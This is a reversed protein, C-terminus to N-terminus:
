YGLVAPLVRCDCMTVFSDADQGNCKLGSRNLIHQVLVTVQNEHYRAAIGGMM